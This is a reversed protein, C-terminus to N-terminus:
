VMEVRSAILNQSSNRLFFGPCTRPAFATALLRRSTSGYPASTMSRTSFRSSGDFSTNETNPM